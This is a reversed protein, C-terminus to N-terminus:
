FTAKKQGFLKGITLGQVIISFFVCFYTAILIIHKAESDPLSMALALSLGGRLGGWIVINADKITFKMVGPLLLTPIYISIIRSLLVILVCILGIIIYSGKFDIVVMIFAILIFLIANLVIDMLEWFKHLYDKSVPGMALDEKYSGVILGMVVMALPGSVHIASALSYGVMVTAITLLVEVDYRDLTRLLFHLGFGLLIGFIVGGLAEQVFLGGFRSIDFKSGSISIELLSIFTVVGVGDNFLSEGVIVAELEKRVGAKTLIGIVAIPDTPSILAGFLLCEVFGMNVNMVGTLVYLAGGIIVTSLLVGALALLSIQNFHRKISKGDTHFSGAFLLPGLMIQLVFQSIDTHNVLIKLYYYPHPLWIRSVIVAISLLASLSFIGIVFPIRIFRQNIYAFAASLGILTTLIYYSEM